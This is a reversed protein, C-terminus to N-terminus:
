VSREVWAGAEAPTNSTALYYPRVRYKQIGTPAPQHAYQTTTPTMNALHYWTGGLQYQLEYYSAGWPLTSFSVANLNGTQYINTISINGFIYRPATYKQQASFIGEGHANASRMYLTYEQNRTLGGLIYSTALGVNVYEFIQGEIGWYLVYSTTPPTHTGAPPMIRLPLRWGNADAMWQAIQNFTPPPNTGGAIWDLGYWDSLSVEGTLNFNSTYGKYYWEQRLTNISVNNDIDNGMEENIMGISISGSSPLAM